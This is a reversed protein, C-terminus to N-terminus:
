EDILMMLQFKTEIGIICEPRIYYWILVIENKRESKQLRIVLM